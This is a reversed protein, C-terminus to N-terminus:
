EQVLQGLDDYGFQRLRGGADTETTLRGAGDYGYAFQDLTSFGDAAVHALGTLRGRGDYSYQTSTNNGNIQRLPQGAPNYEYSFAQNFPNLVGSFRGKTDERYEWTGVGALTQRTLWRQAGYDPVQQVTLSKRGGSPSITTTLTAPNYSYTTTGSADTVSTVRGFDDYSTSVNFGPVGQPSTPYSVQTVRHLADYTFSTVAYVTGMGGAYPRSEWALRGFSDYGFYEHTNDPHRIHTVQGEYLANPDPIGNQDFRTYEFIVACAAGKPPTLKILNGRADYEYLTQRAAPKNAAEIVRLTQGDGNYVFETRVGLEDTASEALGAQNLIVSSASNAFGTQQTTVKLRGTGLDEYTYTVVRSLPDTGSAPLGDANYSIRSVSSEADLSGPMAVRNRPSFTQVPRGLGDFLTSTERGLADQVRNPIGPPTGQDYFLTSGFTVGPALHSKVQQLNGLGGASYVYETVMDNLLSSGARRFATQRLPRNWGTFETESVDGLANTARARTITRNDAAFAYQVQLQVQGNASVSTLNGWADRAYQVYRNTEEDRVEVLDHGQYTYVSRSGGPHVITNGERRYEKVRGDESADVYYSSRVRGDFDAFSGHGTNVGEYQYHVLKGDPETKRIVLDGTFSGGYYNVADAASGYSFSWDRDVGAPGEVHIGTLKKRPTNDPLGSPVEAYALTHTRGRPDLVSTLLGESYGFTLGNGVGDVVSMPLGLGNWTVNVERGWRDQVRTLLFYPMATTAGTEWHVKDFTYRTGSGDIVQFQGYPVSIAFKSPVEVNGGTPDVTGPQINSGDWQHVHHAVQLTDSGNVPADDNISVPDGTIPDTGEAADNLTVTVTAQGPVDACRFHSPIQGPPLPQFQGAGDLVGLEGGTAEYTASALDYIWGGYWPCNSDENKCLDADQNFYGVSLGVVRGPRATEVSFSVQPQQLGPENPDGFTHEHPAAPNRVTVVKTIFSPPDDRTASAQGQGDTASPIDDVEVRLTIEGPTEPAEWHTVLAPDTTPTWQGNGDFCGFSGGGQWASM